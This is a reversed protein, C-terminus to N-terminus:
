YQTLAMWDSQRALSVPIFDMTIMTILYDQLESYYLEIQRLM